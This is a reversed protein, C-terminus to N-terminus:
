VTRPISTRSKALECDRVDAEAWVMGDPLQRPKPLDDVNFIFKEYEAGPRPRFRINNDRAIDRIANNLSGVLIHDPVPLPQVPYERGQRRAENLVAMVQARCLADDAPSLPAAAPIAGHSDEYTSYFWMNTELGRSPDIYTAAFHRATPNDSDDLPVDSAVIVRGFDTRGNPFTTFQLRRLLTISRPLHAELLRLLGPPVDKFVQVPHRDSTM